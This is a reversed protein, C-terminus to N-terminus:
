FGIKTSSQKKQVFGVVPSVTWYYEVPFSPIYVQSEEQM